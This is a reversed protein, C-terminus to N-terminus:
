RGSLPREVSARVTRRPVPYAHTRDELTARVRSHEIRTRTAATDDGTAALCDALLEWALDQYRDLQLSRRAAAVAADLDGRAAQDRALGYAADAAAIRLREREADIRDASGDEPLLDGAYLDLARVYLDIRRSENSRERRAAVLLEEFQTIDVTADRLALRYSDGARRVADLDTVGCRHLVTRVSSIAV